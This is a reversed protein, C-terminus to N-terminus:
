CELPERAVAPALAHSPALLLLEKASEGGRGIDAPEAAAKACLSAAAAVWLRLRRANPICDDAPATEPRWQAGLPEDWPPLSFDFM